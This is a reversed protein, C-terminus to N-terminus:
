KKILRGVQDSFEAEDRILTREFKKLGDVKKTHVALRQEMVLPKEALFIAQNMALRAAQQSPVAANAQAFSLVTLVGAIMWKTLNTNM